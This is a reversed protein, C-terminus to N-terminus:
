LNRTAKNCTELDPPHSFGEEGSPIEWATSRIRIGIALDYQRVEFWPVKDNIARTNWTAKRSENRRSALATCM